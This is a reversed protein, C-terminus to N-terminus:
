AGHGVGEKTKEGRDAVRVDVLAACSPCIVEQALADAGTTYAGGLESLPRERVRFGAERDNLRFGCSPCGGTNTAHAHGGARREGRVAARATETKELDLRGGADIVVGYLSAASEPSVVGEAIDRLVAEPDRELPDGYGGAGNWRVYLADDEGVNYVGWSVLQQDGHFLSLQLPVSTQGDQRAATEAGRAIVYRGPNGPYGGASGHGMPFDVGKGSVVFGFSGDAGGHPVIAYEGGTGGRHRGAGGSDRTRRRFLYRIPYMAENTEVNAMRSIPNPIEGGIDIGDALYGAGGSGGFTETTSGIVTDGRQNRAFLYLCLHSGHWVATAEKKYTPHAALM